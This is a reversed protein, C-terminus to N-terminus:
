AEMVVIYAPEHFPKVRKATVVDLKCGVRGYGVCVRIIVDGFILYVAHEGAAAANLISFVADIEIKRLLM